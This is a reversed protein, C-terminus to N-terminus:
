SKFSKREESGLHESRNLSEESRRGLKRAERKSRTSKYM